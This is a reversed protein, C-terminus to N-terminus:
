KALPKPPKQEIEAPEVSEGGARTILKKLTEPKLAASFPRASGDCFCGLFVGDFRGGLKPLPGQPNFELDDPKTWPVADAAEVFLFTISMGDTIDPLRTQKGNEFVAGNGVFARFPTSYDNPVKGTVSFCVPMSKLLAKNHESDWPEDLKFQKLLSDQELYPLLKVRWSLLPKGNADCINGAFGKLDNAHNHQAIALQKMHNLAVALHANESVLKSVVVEEPREKQFIFLVGDSDKGVSLSSPQRTDDMEMRLLLVGGELAYAIRGKMPGADLEIQKPSTNTNIRFPVGKIEAPSGSIRVKDGEFAFWTSNKLENAQNRADEPVKGGLVVAVCYWKGQLKQQDEGPPAATIAPATQVSSPDEAMGANFWGTGFWCLAVTLSLVAVTFKLKTIFM